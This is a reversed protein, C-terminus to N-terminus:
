KKCDKLDIKKIREILKIGENYRWCKITDNFSKDIKDVHFDIKDGNYYVTTILFSHKDIEQKVGTRISVIIYSSIIISLLMSIILSPFIRKMFNMKM